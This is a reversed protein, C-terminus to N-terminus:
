MSPLDAIVCWFFVDPLINLSAEDELKLQGILYSHFKLDLHACFSARLDPWIGPPCPGSLCCRIMM